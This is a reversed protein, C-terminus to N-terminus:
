SCEFIFEIEVSANLPLTNTAVASRAHQGAPGFLELLFESAADAVKPQEYFTNDSHIFAGVRAVGKISDVASPGMSQVAALANIVCQKAAARAQDMSCQSPIPGIAIIKGEKRPIQGAVFILNGVKKAPIYAGFPGAVPPLTINMSKLKESVNM